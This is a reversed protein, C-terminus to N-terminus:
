SVVPPAHSPPTLFALRRLRVTRPACALALGIVVAAAIALVTPPPAGAPLHAAVCAACDSQTDTYSHEHHGAGLLQLALFLLAFLMVVRQQLTKRHEQRTHQAPASM